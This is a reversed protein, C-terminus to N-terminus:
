RPRHTVRRRLAARALASAAASIRGRRDRTQLSDAVNVLADFQTLRYLEYGRLPSGDQHRWGFVSLADAIEDLALVDDESSGAFALLLLGAREDYSGDARPILRDALHEWLVEPDCRAAAGARTLVLTGKRKRLLGMSQLSQRFGLLPASQVERNHTGIWDGM